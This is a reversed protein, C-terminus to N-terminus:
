CQRLIESFAFQVCVRLADSITPSPIKGTRYLHDALKELMEMEDPLLRVYVPQGMLMKGRKGRRDKVAWSPKAENMNM